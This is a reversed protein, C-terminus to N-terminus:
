LRSLYEVIEPKTWDVPGIFKRRLVGSGDIVFTEPYRYTGYLASSTQAGDRVTMLTPTLGHKVLFEQYAKEDEDTSVALVVVKDKLRTQMAILSPMEEVCPPCWTAWFNLVVTKGRLQSLTVSRDSDRVTFDPAPRGVLDPVSGRQCGALLLAALLLSTKYRRDTM